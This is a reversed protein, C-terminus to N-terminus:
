FWKQYFIEKFSCFLTYKALFSSKRVDERQRIQNLVEMQEKLGRHNMRIIVFLNIEVFLNVWTELAKTGKCKDMLWKHFEAVLQVDKALDFLAFNLNIRNISNRTSIFINFNYLLNEEYSM